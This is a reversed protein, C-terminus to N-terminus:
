HRYWNSRAEGGCVSPSLDAGLGQVFPAICDPGLDATDITGKPTFGALTALGDYAEAIERCLRNYKGQLTAADMERYPYAKDFYENIDSGGELTVQVLRWLLCKEVTKDELSRLRYFLFDSDTTPSGTPVTLGAYIALQATGFAEQMSLAAQVICDEIIAILDGQAQCMGSLRLRALLDNQSGFLPKM